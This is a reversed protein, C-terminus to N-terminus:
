FASVGLLERGLILKQIQTTGEYLSLGIADRLLAEIPYEGLYGVGGHLAIANRAARVAAETAFQKAMVVAKTAPEGADRTRAAEVTLLRAAECDTAMDAVIEQILQHGGIPKGWQRRQGAYAICADLCAQSIGVACAATSTRGSELSTQAIKFGDGPKGLLRDHAVHVGDFFLAATNSAHLGLKETIVRRELGPADGDVIFAAIGKHRKGPDAQAFVVIVDAVSGNSIWFKAGNLVWGGENHQATLEMAAPDSGVNPESLAFAGVLRAAFLEPLYRRRQEETGFAYIATGVLSLQVTLAATFVSPSVGGIAECALVYSVNDIGGGGYEEPFTGGLLGSEAMKRMVDLPFSEDDRRERVYPRIERDAFRKATAYIMRQAETLQM